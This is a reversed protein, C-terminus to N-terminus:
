NSKIYIYPKIAQFKKEGIGKINILEEIDKFEGHANRYEVIRQAIVRGVQPLQILEDSTAHNIDISVNTRKLKENSDVATLIKQKESFNSNKVSPAKEALLSDILNTKEHFLREFDAVKESRNRKPVAKFHSRYLEIGTGVLIGGILFCIFIKEQKTFLDIM